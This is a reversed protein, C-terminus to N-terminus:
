RDRQADDRFVAARLDAAFGPDSAELRNAWALVQEPSKPEPRTSREIQWRDIRRLLSILTAAANAAWRSGYPLAATTGRGFTMSATSM